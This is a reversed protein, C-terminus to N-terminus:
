LSSTRRTRAEAVAKLLAIIEKKSNFAHVVVRIRETGRAVTPSRIPYVDFGKERLAQSLELCQRNGPAYLGQIPSRGISTMLTKRPLHKFAMQEFFKVRDWMVKRAEKMYGTKAFAYVARVTAVSHPPLATTYIFPRAYNILYEIVIKTSLVVAGHAGFAKGFTVVRAFMNPHKNLREAVALGEGNEGFLGGAHAEDAIVFIDRELQISLLQCLELIDGLPAVDGDMSYVTEICVLISGRNKESARLIAERLSNVCNHQFPTTNGRARSMKMGDHVSAHILEDYVISDEPGPVCSLLSINADYGSNFFLSKESGHFSAAEEELSSVEESQGSLLRSGTSGSTTLSNHVDAFKLHFQQFTSSRALGLYDNSSFDVSSPSPPRLQRLLGRKRRDLLADEIREQLQPPVTSPM